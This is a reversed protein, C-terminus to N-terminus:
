WLRLGRRVYGDWREGDYAVGVQWPSRFSPTWWATLSPHRSAQVGLYMHGLQADDCVVQRDRVQLGDDCDSVDIGTHLEVPAPKDLSTALQYTLRGRQDITVFVTDTVLVSDTRVITTPRREELGRIRERLGLAEGRWLSADLKASEYDDPAVVVTVVGASGGSPATKRGWGWGLFAALACLCLVAFGKM